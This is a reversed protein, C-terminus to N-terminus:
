LRCQRCCAQSDRRLASLQSSDTGFVFSSSWIGSGDVTRRHPACSNQRQIRNAALSHCDVPHLMKLGDVMRAQSQLAMRRIRGTSTFLGHISVCDIFQFLLNRQQIVQSRLAPLWGSADAAAPEHSQTGQMGVVTRAKQCVRAAVQKLAIATRTTAVHNSEGFQVM